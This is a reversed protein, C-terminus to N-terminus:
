AGEQFAPPCRLRDALTFTIPSFDPLPVRQLLVVNGAANPRTLRLWGKRALRMVLQHARAKGSAGIEDALEQRTPPRGVEDIYEQLVQLAALENRNLPEPEAAPAGAAISPDPM